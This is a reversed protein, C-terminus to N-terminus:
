LQRELKRALFQLDRHGSLLAHRYLRDLCDSQTLDIHEGTEEELRRRLRITTDIAKKACTRAQDM